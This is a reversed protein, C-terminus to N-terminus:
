PAVATELAAGAPVSELRQALLAAVRAHARADPHPDGPITWRDWDPPAGARTDLIELGLGELIAIRGQGPPYPLFTREDVEQEWNVVLFRAGRAEVFKRMETVLARTLDRDPLPGRQTWLLRMWDWLRLSRIEDTRRPARLLHLAGDRGVGYLPKTALFRADPYLLRRDDNANRTVHDELFTYVVAKVNFRAFNRQLWLLAQDTGYGQVGLNVVQLPFAPTAAMRGAFTEEYPLGHGFTYSCGVLLVTPAAPDSIQGPSAVRAGIADFHIAVQRRDSGFPRLHSRDPIYTWGIEPDFQALANESPTWRAQFPRGTARLGFEALGGFGLTAGILLGLAVGADRRTPCARRLATELMGRVAILAGGVLLLAIQAVRAATRVDGCRWDLSILRGLIEPGVLLGLAGAIIGPLLAAASARPWGNAPSLRLLSTMSLVSSAPAAM